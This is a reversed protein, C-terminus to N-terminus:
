AADPPPRRRKERHLRKHLADRKFHSPNTGDKTYKLGDATVALLPPYECQALVQMQGWVEATDKPDHCKSQAQEIATDLPDRRKTKTTHVLVVTQVILDKAATSSEPGSKPVARESGAAVDALEAASSAGEPLRFSVLFGALELWANFDEAFLWETLFDSINDGWRPAGDEVDRFQMEHAAAAKAARKMLAKQSVGFGDIAAVYAVADALKWLRRGAIWREDGPAAKPFRYGARQEDLWQDVDAVLVLSMFARFVSGDLLPLRDSGRVLRRGNVTAVSMRRIMDKVAIGPRSDALVQAAYDVVFFGEAQQRITTQIQAIYDHATLRARGSSSGIASRVEVREAPDMAQLAPDVCVPRAEAIFVRLDSDEDIPEASQDVEQLAMAPMQGAVPPLTSLRALARPVNLGRKIAWAVADTPRVRRRMFHRDADLYALTGAITSDKLARYARALPQDQPGNIVNANFTLEDGEPAEGQLLYAAERLSWLEMTLWPGLSENIAADESEFKALRKCTWQAHRLCTKQNPWESLMLSRRLRLEAARDDKTTELREIQADIAPLWVQPTLGALFWLLENNRPDAYEWNGLTCLRQTTLHGIWVPSSDDSM